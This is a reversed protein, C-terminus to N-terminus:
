FLSSIFRIPLTNQTRPPHSTGEPSLLQSRTYRNHASEQLTTTSANQLANNLTRFLPPPQTKFTINLLSSLFDQFTSFSFYMFPWILIGNETLRYVSYIYYYQHLWRNYSVQHCVNRWSELLENCYTSNLPWM